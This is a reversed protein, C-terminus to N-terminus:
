SATVYMEVQVTTGGANANGQLYPTASPGLRGFWVDGPYLRQLESSGTSDSFISVYNYPDINRVLCYGLPNVGGLQLAQKTSTSINQTGQLYL